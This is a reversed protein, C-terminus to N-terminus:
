QAYTCTASARQDCKLHYERTPIRNLVLPVSTSAGRGSRFQAYAAPHDTGLERVAHYLANVRRRYDLLDLM